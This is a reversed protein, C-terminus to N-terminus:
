GETREHSVITKFMFYIIFLLASFGVTMKVAQPNTLQYISDTLLTVPSTFLDWSNWRQIRGLYIGYGTLILSGAVVFWSKVTGLSKVLLEHVIHLAYIGVVLGSLACSFLLLTDAWIAPNFRTNLHVLDTIIYPANPFFLLWLCFIGVSKWRAPNGYRLRHKWILAFALPVWALFLNWGLFFYTFNNSRIYSLTILCVCFSSILFLAFIPNGKAELIRNFLRMVKDTKHKSVENM